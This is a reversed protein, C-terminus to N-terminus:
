VYQNAPVVLKLELFFQYKGITVRPTTFIHRPLYGLCLMILFSYVSCTVNISYRRYSLTIAQFDVM